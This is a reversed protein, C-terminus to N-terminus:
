LNNLKRQLVQTINFKKNVFNLFTHIYIFLVAKM